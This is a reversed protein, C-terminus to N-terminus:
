AKNAKKKCCLLIESINRNNVTKGTQSYASGKWWFKAWKKRTHKRNAIQSLVKTCFWQRNSSNILIIAKNIGLTRM